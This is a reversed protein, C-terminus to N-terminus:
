RQRVSLLIFLKTRGGHQKINWVFFYKSLIQMFTFSDRYCATSAWLTTLRRPDWMKQVTPECIATLNDAKHVPRGKGGPLKRTSMETLPQTSGWTWLAAPLILYISFDLVKMPFRVRSRGARLM